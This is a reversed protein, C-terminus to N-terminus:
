SSSGTGVRNKKLAPEEEQELASEYQPSSGGSGDGTSSSNHNRKSGGKNNNNSKSSAVTDDELTTGDRGAVSEDKGTESSATVEKPADDDFSSAPSEADGVINKPPTQSDSSDDQVVAVTSQEQKRNGGFRKPKASPTWSLAADKLDFGAALEDVLWANGVMPDGPSYEVWSLETGNLALGLAEFRTKRKPPLLDYDLLLFQIRLWNEVTKPLELVRGSNRRLERTEHSVKELTKLWSNRDELWSFGTRLLREAKEPALTGERAERKLSDLWVGLGGRAYGSPVDVSGHEQQYENLRGMMEDFYHEPPEIGGVYWEFNLKELLEKREPKLKQQFNLQRQRVVWYSLPKDKNRSVLCNGHVECYKQLSKYNVAWREDLSAIERPSSAKAQDEGSGDASGNFGLSELKDVREQSLQDYLRRQESVWPGLGPDGSYHYPVNM